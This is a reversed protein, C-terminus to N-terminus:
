SRTSCTQGKTKRAEVRQQAVSFAARLAPEPRRRMSIPRSATLSPAGEQGARFGPTLDAASSRRSTTASWAPWVVPRLRARWTAAPRRLRAARSVPASSAANSTPAKAPLLPLAPRSPSSSPVCQRTETDSEQGGRPPMQWPLAPAEADTGRPEAHDPLNHGIHRFGRHSPQLPSEDLRGSPSRARLSGSASFVGRVAGPCVNVSAETDDFVNTLADAPVRELRPRMPPFVGMATVM